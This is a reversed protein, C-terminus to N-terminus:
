GQYLLLSADVADWLFMISCATTKLPPFADASNSIGQLFARGIDVAIDRKGKNRSESTGNSMALVSRINHNLTLHFVALNQPTGTM